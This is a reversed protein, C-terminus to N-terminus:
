SVPHRALFSVLAELLADPHTLAVDHGAGAITVQDAHPLWARILNSVGEFFLGHDRGAVHLAPCRVRTATSADFPWSLLAPIDVDLFTRSDRLVQESSGPVVRDLQGRWDPGM